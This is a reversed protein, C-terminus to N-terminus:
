FGGFGPGQGSMLNKKEKSVFLSSTKVEIGQSVMICKNRLPFQATIPTVSRKPYVVRFASLWKPHMENLLIAEMTEQGEQVVPTQLIIDM